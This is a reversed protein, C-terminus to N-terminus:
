FCRRYFHYELKRTWSRAKWFEIDSILKHCHMNFFVKWNVGRQPLCYGLNNLLSRILRAYPRCSSPLLEKTPSILDYLVSVTGIVCPFTSFNQAGRVHVELFLRPEAPWIEANDLDQRGLAQGSLDLSKQPIFVLQSAMAAPWIKCNASVIMDPEEKESLAM